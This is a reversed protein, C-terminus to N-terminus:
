IHFCRMPSSCWGWGGGTRPLISARARTPGSREPRWLGSIARLLTTKGSGSPGVLALLEGPAVRFAVDLPIPGRSRAMVELTM